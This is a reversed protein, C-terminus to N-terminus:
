ITVEFKKFFDVPNYSLKAKRLGEDGLDQERNVLTFGDADHDLFAQNIAQYVGKYDPHGKEFHIVLTSEDLADAVTYAVMRGDVRLSGGMLGPLRDWDTLVRVIAENEQVLTAESECDRWMCWSEQLELAEEICDPTLSRYEWDYLKRFQNLLNKKKHFRNGSLNVLEEVSYLYDWHERAERTEAGLKEAFLAAVAESARIIRREPFMEPTLAVSGVPGVPAWLAPEPREQRIWCLGDRFMWSLGYVEAWGWLNIFSYDSSRAPSAALLAAYEERRDLCIPSFDETAM